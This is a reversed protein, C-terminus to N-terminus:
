SEVTKRIYVNLWQEEKREERIDNTKYIKILELEKFNNIIDKIDKTRYESYYIGNKLGSVDGYKLSMYLIGNPRLSNVIKVLINSLENKPIHVLAACAWVGDFVSEFDMEEYRMCLVDQGIHIEALGCLESAGDMATVDFGHEILYLSDRGSGCGLDLIPCNEPLLSIFEELAESMDLEITKDYYVRAQENYFDTQDM